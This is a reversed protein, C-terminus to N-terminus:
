LDQAKKKDRYRQTQEKRKDPNNLRWLRVREREHEKMQQRRIRGYEKDTAKKDEPTIMPRNKNLCLPDGVVKMLEDMEHQRLETRDDTDYESILTIEANNDWGVTNFHTYVPSRSRVPDKLLAKHHKMRDKLTKM